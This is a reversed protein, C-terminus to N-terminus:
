VNADSFTPSTTRDSSPTGPHDHLNNITDLIGFAVAQKEVRKRLRRLYPAHFGEPDFEGFLTLTEDSEPFPIRWRAQMWGARAIGATKVASLGLLMSSSNACDDYCVDYTNPRPTLHPQQWAYVADPLVDDQLAEIRAELEAVEDTLQTACHTYFIDASKVASCVEAM